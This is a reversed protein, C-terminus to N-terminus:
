RVSPRHFDLNPITDQAMAGAALTVSLFAAGLASRMSM